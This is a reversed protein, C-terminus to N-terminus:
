AARAGGGAEAPRHLRWRRREEGAVGPEVAHVEELPRAARPREHREQPAHAGLAVLHGEVEPPAHLAHEDGPGRTGALADAKRAGVRALPAPEEGRPPERGRPGPARLERLEEGEGVREAEWGRRDLEPERRRGLLRAVGRGHGGAE